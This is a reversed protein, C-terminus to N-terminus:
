RVMRKGSDLDGGSQDQNRSRLATRVDDLSLARQALCGRRTSHM